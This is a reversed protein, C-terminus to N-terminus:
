RAHFQLGLPPLPALRHTHIITRRRRQVPDQRPLFDARGLLTFQLLQLGTEIGERQPPLDVLCEFFDILMAFQLISRSRHYIYFLWSWSRFRLSAASCKPTGGDEKTKLHFPYCSKQPLRLTKRGVEPLL